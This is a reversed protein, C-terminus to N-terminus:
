YRAGSMEHFLQLDFTGNSQSGVEVIDRIDAQMDSKCYFKLKSSIKNSSPPNLICESENVKLFTEKM